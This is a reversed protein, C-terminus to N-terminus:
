IGRLKGARGGIMNGKVILQDGAYASVSYRSMENYVQTQKVNYILSQEFNVHGYIEIDVYALLGIRAYTETISKGFLKLLLHTSHNYEKNELDNLFSLINMGAYGESVLKVEITWILSILNCCQGLGEIIYITPWPAPNFSYPFVQESRHIELLASM